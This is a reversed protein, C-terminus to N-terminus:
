GLAPAADPSIRLGVWLRSKKDREQVIGRGRLRDGFTKKGVPKTKESEAWAVYANYLEGVAVKYAPGLEVMEDLFDNLIDQDARYDSTADEVEVCSWQPDDSWDIWGRLIWNLIGSREEWFEDLVEEQPRRADAPVAHNWPILRIRRWIGEDTGYVQPRHNVVLVIDFTQDFEFFDARMYRGKLRDGGTLGKITSEALRKGQEVEASFVLRSGALDAIATPHQEYKTQVLLDPAATRVYGGLVNMIARTTTTKGNAGTGYWIPLREELSTGAVSRGTQRQVERQIAEEPLCMGLHAEWRPAESLPDYEVPAVVTILDSARHERLEVTHLDLTGNELNLLMPDADWDDAFTLMSDMGALFRLVHSMNRYGSIAKIAELIHKEDAGEDLQRMLDANLANCAVVAARDEPVARWREELYEMWTKRHQSWRLADQVLPEAASALGFDKGRLDGSGGPRSPRAHRPM